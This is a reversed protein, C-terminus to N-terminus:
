DTETAFLLNTVSLDIFSIPGLAQFFMTANAKKAGLSISRGEVASPGLGTLSAVSSDPKQQILGPKRAM